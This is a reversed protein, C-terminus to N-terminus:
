IDEVFVALFGHNAAICSLIAENVELDTDYTTQRQCPDIRKGIHDNKKYSFRVWSRILGKKIQKKFYSCISVFLLIQCVDFM